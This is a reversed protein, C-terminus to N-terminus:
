LVKNILNNILKELFLTIFLRINYILTTSNALIIAIAASSFLSLCHFFYFFFICWFVMCKDCGLPRPLSIPMKVCRALLREVSNIIDTGLYLESIFWTM